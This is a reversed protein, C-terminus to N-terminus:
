CTLHLQLLYVSPNTVSVNNANTTGAIVATLQTSSVYTVNTANIGGFKVTAGPQFSSGNITITQGIFGTNPPQIGIAPTPNAFTIVPAATNVAM